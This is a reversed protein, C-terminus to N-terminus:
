LEARGEYSISDEPLVHKMVREFQSIDIPKAIFGDFGENMFMEKAGSLANATLAIIVVSKGADKAAFRLRKMAEVGDMEPMMHDMFIVDYDGAKYKEISEIGSDATDVTMKYDKLLGSAVVLNMPEDDVVLARIGEFVPKGTNQSEAKLQEHEGNLIRVVPYGYLPKPMMIVRSGVSVTFDVDASVAVTYGEGALKDFLKGEKEYEEQGLFIHTVNFDDLLRQLERQDSASYLHMKLGMALDIAMSRYFERLEPITYKEPKIYFVVDGAKGEGVSLCPMPNVVQQPISLRVTTGKGKTSEIKVFGGMKHVFGYVIPLGIGIGGTSRNRKKNSQYMGNSVKGMAARTMGIGTDTVEITLNIGYDQSVPFVKIYIGGRKTFKIANDLLHRFLKHIKQVDGKLLTPTMPSLDVILELNNRAGMKRYNAVVDNILSSCMYEGEELKLEGRKLETYDQIDEILHSLRIGAESISDLEERDNDKKLITTMGSIVNVPTRFEHSINSLFDQMDHQNEKVTEQWEVLKEQEILRRNITLRSFFFLTMVTGLHFMIKVATLADIVTGNKILFAFQVLMIIGYEIVILNIMLKKNLITFVVMFLSISVSVDFLSTEHIGHYFALFATYVFYMYIRNDYTDAQVIHAWWLAIDVLFALPPVWFEWGGIYNQLACAIFSLTVIFLILRERRIDQM